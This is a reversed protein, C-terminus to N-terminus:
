QPDCTLVSAPSTHVWYPSCSHEEAQGIVMGEGLGKELGDMGKRAESFTREGANWAPPLEGPCETEMVWLPATQGENRVCRSLPKLSNKELIVERM